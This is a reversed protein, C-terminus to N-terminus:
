FAYLYFLFGKDFPKSGPSVHINFEQELLNILLEENLEDYTLCGLPGVADDSEDIQGTLEQFLRKQNADETDQTFSVHPALFLTVLFSFLIFKSRAKM